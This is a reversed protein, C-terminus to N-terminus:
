KNESIYDLPGASEDYLTSHCLKIRANGAVKDPHDSRSLPTQRPVSIVASVPTLSHVRPEGVRFTFVDSYEYISKAIPLVSAINQIVSEKDHHCCFHWVISKM